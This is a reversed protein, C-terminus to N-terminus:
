VRKLFSKIAFKFHDKLEDELMLSLSSKKFTSYPNIFNAARLCARQYFFACLHDFSKKEFAEMKKNAQSILLLWEEIENLFAKEKLPTKDVLQYHLNLQKVSAKIGIRQLLSNQIVKTAKELKEKKLRSINQDHIRYKVLKENLNTISGYTALQTFFEYDEALQFGEKYKCAKETPSKRFLVSSNIFYNSFVLLSHLMEGKIPRKEIGIKNGLSDILECASGVLVIDPNKEVFYVQKTLRSPLALDDSDLNAIYKGKAEQLGKNRTYVLGKNEENEYYKIRNDQEAHKVAIEATGDTSGDNIILLEWNTYEQALVSQISAEIFAAANYAPM